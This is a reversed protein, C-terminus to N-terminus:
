RTLVTQKTLELGTLSEIECVFHISISSRLSRELKWVYTYIHHRHAEKCM